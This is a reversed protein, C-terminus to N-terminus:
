SLWKSVILNSTFDIEPFTMIKNKFCAGCYLCSCMKLASCNPTWKDTPSLCKLYQWNVPYACQLLVSLQFCLYPIQALGHKNKKTKKTQKCKLPIWWACSLLLVLTPAASVASLATNRLVFEWGNASLALYLKLIAALHTRETKANHQGAKKPLALYFSSPFGPWDGLYIGHWPAM